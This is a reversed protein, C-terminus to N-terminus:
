LERIFNFLDIPIDVTYSPASIGFRYGEIINGDNDEMLISTYFVAKTVKNDFHLCQQEKCKESTM